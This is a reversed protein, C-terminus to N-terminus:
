ILLATKDYIPSVVPVLTLRKQWDQDGLVRTDDIFAKDGLERGVAEIPQNPYSLGKEVTRIKEQANSLLATLLFLSAVCVCVRSKYKM